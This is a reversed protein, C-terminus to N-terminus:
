LISGRIYPYTFIRSNSAAKSDRRLYNETRTRAIRHLTPALAYFGVIAGVALLLGVIVISAVIWKRVASYNMRMATLNSPDCVAQSPHSKLIAGSPGDDLGSAFM